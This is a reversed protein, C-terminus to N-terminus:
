RRSSGASRGSGGDSTTACSRTRPMPASPPTRRGTRRSPRSGRSSSTRSSSWSAAWRIRGTPPPAPRSRASRGTSAPSTRCRVPRSSRTRRTAARTPRAPWPARSCGTISARSSTSPRRRRARRACRPSTTACRRPPLEDELAAALDAMEEAVGPSPPLFGLSLLRAVAATALEIRHEQTMQMTVGGAADRRVAFLAQTRRPEGRRRGLRRRRAALDRRAGARRARLPARAAVRDHGVLPRGRPRRARRRDARRALHNCGFGEAVLEEVPTTRSPAAMANGVARAPSWLVAVEPPLIDDPDLDRIVNPFQAEIGQSANLDVDRQWSARWQVIHAPAKADGMTIAPTAPGAAPLMVAVADNFRAVGSLESPTRQEWSLRLGLTTGDHLAAVRVDPITQEALKPTAIQQPALALLTEGEHDWAGDRPEGVPVEDVRRGVLPDGLAPDGGDQAMDYGILAATGVGAAGVILARRTVGSM